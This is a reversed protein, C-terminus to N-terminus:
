LTSSSCHSWHSMCEHVAPISSTLNLVPVPSWQYSLPTPTDAPHIQLLPVLSVYLSRPLILNLKVSVTGGSKVTSTTIVVWFHANDWSRAEPTKFIVIACQFIWWCEVVVGNGTMNCCLKRSFVLRDTWYSKLVVTLLKITLVYSLKFPTVHLSTM